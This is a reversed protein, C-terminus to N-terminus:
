AENGVQVAKFVNSVGLIRDSLTPKEGYGKLADSSSLVHAIVLQRLILHGDGFDVSQHLFQKYAAADIRSEVGKEQLLLM